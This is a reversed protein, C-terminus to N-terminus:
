LPQSWPSESGALVAEHFAGMSLLSPISIETNLVFPPRGVADVDGLREDEKSLSDKFFIVIGRVEVAGM